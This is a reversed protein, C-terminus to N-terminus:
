PTVSGVLDIDAWVSKGGNARLRTGWERALSGVIALGRGTTRDQSPSQANPMKSSEDAVEIHLHNTRLALVLTVPGMAHLVANAVLEGVVLAVDDGIDSVKWRELTERAFSRAAISSAVFPPLTLDRRASDGVCDRSVIRRAQQAM